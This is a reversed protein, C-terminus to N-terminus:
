KRGLLTVGPWEGVTVLQPVLSVIVKEVAAAAPSRPTNELRCLSMTRTIEPTVIRRTRLDKVAEQSLPIASLPLITCAVNNL